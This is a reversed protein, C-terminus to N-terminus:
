VATQMEKQMVLSNLTVVPFNQAQLIQEENVFSHIARIHFSDSLLEYPNQRRWV